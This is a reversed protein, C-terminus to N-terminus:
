LAPRSLFPLCIWQCGRSAASKPSSLSPKSLCSAPRRATQRSSLETELVHPLLNPTCQLEQERPARSGASRPPTPALNSGSDEQRAIVEPTEGTGRPSLITRETGRAEDAERWDDRDGYVIGKTRYRRCSPRSTTCSSLWWNSAFKGM